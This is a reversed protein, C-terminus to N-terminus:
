SDLNKLFSSNDPTINKTTIFRCYINFNFYYNVTKFVSWYINIGILKFHMTLSFNLLFM